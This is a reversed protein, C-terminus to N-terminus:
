FLKNVEIYEVLDASSIEGISRPISFIIPYMGKKRESEYKQLCYMLARNDTAKKHCITGNPCHVCMMGILKTQIESNSM